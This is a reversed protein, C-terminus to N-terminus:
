GTHGYLSENTKLFLEHHQKLNLSFVPHFKSLIQFSKEENNLKFM